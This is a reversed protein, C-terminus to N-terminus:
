GCIKGHVCLAVKMGRTLRARPFACVVGDLNSHLDLQSTNHAAHVAHVHATMPHPIATIQFHVLISLIQIYLQLTGARASLIFYPVTSFGANDNVPGTSTLM